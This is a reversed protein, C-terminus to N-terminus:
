CLLLIFNYNEEVNQIISNISRADERPHKKRWTAHGM